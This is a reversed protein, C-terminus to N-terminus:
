LLHGDSRRFSRGALACAGLVASAPWMSWRVTGGPQRISIAHQCGGHQCGVRGIDLRTRARGRCNVLRPQHLRPAHGGRAGDAFAFGGGPRGHGLRSGLACSFGGVGEVICVDAREGVKRISALLDQRSIEVGELRAAIHPACATRLQLPCVESESLDMNSASRLVVVDENVWRGDVYDQGAALSKIAATQYGALVCVQTLGASICTKGIGTDTGTIFYGKM